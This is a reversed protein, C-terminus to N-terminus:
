RCKKWRVRTTNKEQGLFTQAPDNSPLRGGVALTQLAGYLVM